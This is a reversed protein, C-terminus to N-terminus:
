CWFCKLPLITIISAPLRELKWKWRTNNIDPALCFDSLRKGSESDGSLGEKAHNKLCDFDLLIQNQQYGAGASKLTCIWSWLMAM